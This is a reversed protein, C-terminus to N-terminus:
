SSFRVGNLSLADIPHPVGTLKPSYAIIWPSTFLMYDYNDKVAATTAAKLATAYKPSSLPYQAAQNLAATLAPTANRGPNLLGDAAYQINLMELPSERGVIGNPNFQVNHKVYVDEAVAAEPLSTMNVTFGVAQLEAQIQEAEAQGIGGDAFWSITVTPKKVGSEALLQKAKSPDYSWYNAVSPSYGVYGQPFPEDDVQGVGGDVTKMLAARDLAYGVAQAVKPNNFPAITNNLEISDVHLSPFTAVKLGASKVAQVETGPIVAMQTAGSALSSVVSQPDSIFQLNLKQVHIQSADYYGPNRILTAQGNPTYSTLIFPGAGVPKNDLAGVNDKIAKPSVMMGTKGGLVLPLGYDLTKLHLAVAYNNIRQVSKISNLETAILSDKAYEGRNLNAVVAAANFPSGDSFKVGERLTLTLAKGGDSWKWSTALGPTPNGSANLQILSAYVLSLDNVDNGAESTVPDWETPADTAFNLTGSAAPSASDKVAAGGSTSTSGGCAAITVAILGASVTASLTRASALTRTRLLKPRAPKTVRM